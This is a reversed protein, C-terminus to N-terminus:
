VAMQHNSDSRTFCNLVSILFIFQHLKAPEFRQGGAHLAPARGASSFGRSFINNLFTPARLRVQVSMATVGCSKLDQTDVSKVMRANKIFYSPTGYHIQVM